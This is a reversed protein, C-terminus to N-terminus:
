SSFRWCYGGSSKRVGRCVPSINSAGTAEKAEKISSFSSVVEGTNMDIQEVRKVLPSNESLRERMKQRSSESWRGKEIEREDDYKWVFGGATKLKGACCMGVSSYSVDVKRCADTISEFTEIMNGDSDFQSVRRKLKSKMSEPMHKGVKMRSITTKTEESHKFGLMGEGGLTMNYGNAVSDSERILRMEEDRLEELSSCRAVVEVVFNDSGYKRIAAHFAYKSGKTLADYVHGKMRFCLSHKTKGVYKKGNVTNTVCYVVMTARADAHEDIQAISVM